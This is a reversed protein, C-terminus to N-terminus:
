ICRQSYGHLLVDNCNSNKNVLVVNKEVVHFVNSLSAQAIAISVRLQISMCFSLSRKARALVTLCSPAFSGFAM